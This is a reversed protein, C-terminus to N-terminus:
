EVKEQFWLLRTAYCSFCLITLAYIRFKVAFNEKYSVIQSPQLTIFARQVSGALQSTDSALLWANNGVNIASDSLGADAAAIADSSLM